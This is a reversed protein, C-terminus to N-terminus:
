KKEKQQHQQFQKKLESDPLHVYTNITTQISTHGLRHQVYALNWGSCILETAHTHRLIHPHVQIGTRHRLRRFLDQVASISMPKGIPNRWLNVFVYDTINEQVEDILYNAYLKILNTSVHVPYSKTTKARVQNANNTRAVIYIVCERSHIDEHRLGLAQGIRMGTEYLLSVLFKDRLCNCADVLEYVQESTIVNLIPKPPKLRLQNVTTPKTKTIGHLFRKYRGYSPQSTKHVPNHQIIGLREQFDYFM